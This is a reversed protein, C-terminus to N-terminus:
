IQFTLIRKQPMISSGTACKDNLSIFEFEWSYWAILEEAMRSLHMSCISLVSLFELSLDKDSVGYLSNQTIRSFGLAAATEERLIPYIVGAPACSGLPCEDARNDWDNLHEIDRLFMQVYAMLHHAFTIPHARQLHTYDPM